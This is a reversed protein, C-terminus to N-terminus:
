GAWLRRVWRRWVLARLKRRVWRVDFDDVYKLQASTDVAQSSYVRRVYAVPNEIGWVKTMLALFMGTRGWGGACGVYVPADLAKQLALLLVREVEAKPVAPASWDLVPLWASSQVSCTIPFQELLCIGFMTDPCCRFPGGVVFLPPQIGYWRSPLRLVGNAGDVSIVQPM